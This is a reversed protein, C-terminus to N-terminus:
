LLGKGGKLRLSSSPTARWQTGCFLLDLLAPYDKSAFASQAKQTQYLAPWRNGTNTCNASTALFQDLSAWPALNTVQPSTISQGGDFGASLGAELVAAVTEGFRKEMAEFRVLKEFLRPEIM